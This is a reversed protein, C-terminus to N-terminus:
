YWVEHEPNLVAAGSAPYSSFIYLNLDNNIEVELKEKENMYYQSQIEQIFKESESEKVLSVCCGGWGAGTLRSGLAGKERALSILKDLQESSCDYLEKCSKHSENMLSGLLQCKEELTVGTPNNCIDRFEIM